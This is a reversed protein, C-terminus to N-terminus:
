DRLMSGDLRGSAIDIERKESPYIEGPKM